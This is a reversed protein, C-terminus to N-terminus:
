PLLHQPCEQLYDESTAFQPAVCQWNFIGNPPLSESGDRVSLTVPYLHLLPLGFTMLAQVGFATLNAQETDFIISHIYRGTFHYLKLSLIANASDTIM